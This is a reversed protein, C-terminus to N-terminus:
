SRVYFAKLGVEDSIVLEFCVGRRRHGVEETVAEAVTVFQALEHERHDVDRGDVTVVESHSILLAIYDQIEHYHLRM